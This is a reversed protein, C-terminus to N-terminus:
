FLIWQVNKKLYLFTPTIKHPKKTHFTMCLIDFCSKQSYIFLSLRRELKYLQALRAPTQFSKATVFIFTKDQWASAKPGLQKNRYVQDM